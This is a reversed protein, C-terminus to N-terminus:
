HLVLHHWWQLIDTNCTWSYLKQDVAKLSKYLWENQFWSKNVSITIVFSFNLINWGWALYAYPLWFDYEPYKHTILNVYVLWLFILVDNGLFVPLHRPKHVWFLAHYQTQYLHVQSPSTAFNKEQVIRHEPATHMTVWKHFRCCM